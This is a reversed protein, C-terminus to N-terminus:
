AMPTEVSERHAVSLRPDPGSGVNFLTIQMRSRRGRTRRDLQRVHAGHDADVFSRCKHCRLSSRASLLRRRRRTVWHRARRSARSHKSPQPVALVCSAVRPESRRGKRPGSSAVYTMHVDGSVVVISAPAEDELATASRVLLDVLRHFSRQYAARRQLDVARRLREPAYGDWSSAGVATVSPKTGRRSSTFATLFSPLSRRLSSSTITRAPTCSRRGLAMGGHQDDRTRGRRHRTRRPLRRCAPTDTWPRSLVGVSEVGPRSGMDARTGEAPRADAKGRIEDFLADDVIELHSLKGLHQYALVCSTGTIRAEVMTERADRRSGRKPSTGTTM